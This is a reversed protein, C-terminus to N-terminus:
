TPRAKDQNFAAAEAFMGAMSEVSATNWGELPQLEVERIVRIFLIVSCPFWCWIRYTDLSCLHIILM